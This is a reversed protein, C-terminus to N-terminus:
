VKDKKCTNLRWEDQTKLAMDVTINESIIGALSKAITDLQKQLKHEAQKYAKVDPHQYLASKAKSLAKKYNSLDPHHRGYQKADEYNQKAKDFAHIMTQVTQNQDVITKLKKVENFPKDKKIDDILDYTARILKDDVKIVLKM